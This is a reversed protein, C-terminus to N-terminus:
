AFRRLQNMFGPNPRIVHRKNKVFQTAQVLNLNQTRMLYMIMITASRSVGATCHVLVNGRARKILDECRNFILQIPADPVDQIYFSHHDINQRRYMQLEDETKERENLCIIRTIHNKRLLKPDVSSSWDSLFLGGTIPSM